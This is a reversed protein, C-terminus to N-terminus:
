FSQFLIGPELSGTSAARQEDAMSTRALRLV